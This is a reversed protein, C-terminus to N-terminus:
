LKLRIGGYVARGPAVYYVYYLRNALNEANVYVTVHRNIEYGATADITFAPDYAGMVGKTTDTNLDSSYTAGAFRATVSGTFRKYYAMLMGSAMHEPINPVRKGVSAPTADNRTIVADTWTYTGRLQLWPLIQAHGGLEVGRTKGEGANVNVRDTATNTKRYILNTIFNEYFDADFDFRQGIRKRFGGEWSKLREPELAPNARYLVGAIVTTNYLDYMDPNRFATGASLRLVWDNPLGYSAAVKGTVSNSSRDPYPTYPSAATFTNSSGDYTKWYDYRIGALINLHDGFSLQDQAYVAETVNRGLAFYTQNWKTDRNIWNSLNFVSNSAIDHRAESGVIFDNHHGAQFTYQVDGHWARRTNQNYTGVGGSSIATAGPTNYDSDPTNYLGADARLYQRSTFKHQITFSFFDSYQLGPGQLFSGPSVTLKGPAGNQGVFAFTGNDAPNGSSDRLFSHYADYGYGYNTRAFQFSAFTADSFTYDVKVRYAHTNFWNDGSNGVVYTQTGSTTLMPIAGTVSVPATGASGSATALRTEYGGSQLRRYGLSVGLRGFFREAYHLSYRATDYGGYEGTAVFERQEIPRTFISIVGGLANGGYLSSFPGRAVEVRSVEEVPLVDWQIDGTYADNIPQGDLLVLTRTGGNFGRMLTKTITDAPGKARQVFVGPELNFGQDLTKVDRSDLDRQTVVSASIPSKQLDQEDRTGTVIVTTHPHLPDEAAKTLDAPTSTDQALVPLVLLFITLRTM